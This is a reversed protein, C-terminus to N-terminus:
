SFPHIKNFTNYGRLGSKFQKAKWQYDFSKVIKRVYRLEGLLWNVWGSENALYLLKIKNNNVVIAFANANLM